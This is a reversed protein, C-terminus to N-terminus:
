SEIECDEDLTSMDVIEYKSEPGEVKFEKGDKLSMILKKGGKHLGVLKAPVWAQKESPIWLYKESEM